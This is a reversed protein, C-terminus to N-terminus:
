HCKRTYLIEIWQIGQTNLSSEVRQYLGPRPSFKMWRHTEPVLSDTAEYVDMQLMTAAAIIEVTTGWVSIQKLRKVHNKFSRPLDLAAVLPKFINPHKEMFEMTQKRLHVHNDSDGTTQKALARFLCNGDGLVRDVKRNLRRLFPQSLRYYVMCCATRHYIFSKAFQQKLHSVEKCKGYEDPVICTILM